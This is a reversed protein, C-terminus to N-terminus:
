YRIVRSSVFGQKATFVDAFKWVCPHACDQALFSRITLICVLVSCYTSPFIVFFFNNPNIRVESIVTVSAIAIFYFYLM